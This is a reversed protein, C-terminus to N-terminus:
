EEAFLEGYNQNKVRKRYKRNKEVDKEACSVCCSLKAREFEKTKGCVCCLGNLM